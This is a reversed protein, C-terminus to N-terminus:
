GAGLRRPLRDRLVVAPDGAADMGATGRKTHVTILVFRGSSASHAWALKGAVRFRTEDFHVVESEPLARIIADLAPAVLGAIKKAMGAIVAPSPACGSMDGLAAAARDRSLFQGHRLYTALASARPGYQVPANVGGPAAARTGCGGCEREIMQHETVEARVPPVETVQRREMGTVPAGDLGAGCRSCCGPEHRVLHDPHDTLEM